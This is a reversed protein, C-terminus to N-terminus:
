ILFYAPLEVAVSKVMEIGDGLVEPLIIIKNDAVSVDLKFGPLYTYSTTIIEPEV